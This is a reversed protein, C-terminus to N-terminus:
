KLSERKNGFLKEKTRVSFHRFIYWAGVAGPIILLVTLLWFVYSINREQNQINSIRFEGESRESLIVSINDYEVDAFSNKLFRKIDSIQLGLPTSREYVALASLHVPKSPRGNEGSDIDYSIHVRSSVIGQLTLLSQELRQEIASYLRAKEARPSSVLSDAPFMQAIEVRPRPPLEYVNIWYVAAAFDSESVSISYGKKGDDIKGANINHQQLVSIVKNVQYQDLEKLLKKEKCASLLITILLVYICRTIM